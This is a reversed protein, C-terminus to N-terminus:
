HLQGKDDVDDHWNFGLRNYWKINPCYKRRRTIQEGTERYRFGTNFTGEILKAGCRQCYIWEDLFGPKEKTGM